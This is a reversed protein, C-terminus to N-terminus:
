GIQKDSPPPSRSSESEEKPQVQLPCLGEEKRKVFNTDAKRRICEDIEMDETYDAAAMEEHDKVDLQTAKHQLLLEVAKKNNERSAAILATDGVSWVYM